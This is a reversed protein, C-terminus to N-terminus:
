GKQKKVQPRVFNKCLGDNDVNISLSYICVLYGKDGMDGCEYERKSNKCTSCCKSGDEQYGIEQKIQKILEKKM